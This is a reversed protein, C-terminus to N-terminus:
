PGGWGCHRRHLLHRNDEAVKAAAVEIRADLDTGEMARLAASVARNGVHAATLQSFTGVSTIVALGAILLMLVGRFVWLVHRWAAALRGARLLKACEM